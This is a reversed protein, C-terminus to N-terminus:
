KKQLENQIEFMESISLQKQLKYISNSHTLCWKDTVFICVSTTIPILSSSADSLLGTIIINNWSNLVGGLNDEAPTNFRSAPDKFWSGAQSTQKTYYVLEGKVKNQEFREQAEQFKSLGHENLIDTYKVQDSLPVVTQQFMSVRYYENTDPKLLKHASNEKPASEKNIHIHQIHPQNAFRGGMENHNNILRDM